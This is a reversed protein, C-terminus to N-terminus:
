DAGRLWDRALGQGGGVAREPPAKLTCLFCLLSIVHKVDACAGALPFLPHALLTLILLLARNVESGM